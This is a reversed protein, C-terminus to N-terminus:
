VECNQRLVKSRGTRGPEEELMNVYNKLKTKAMKTQLVDVRGRLMELFAHDPPSDRTFIEVVEANQLQYHPPVYMGNVKCATARNGVDTHIYYAFDLATAGKLACAVTLFRKLATQENEMVINVDRRVRFHIRDM